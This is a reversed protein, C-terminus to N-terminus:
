VAAVLPINVITTKHLLRPGATKHSSHTTTENSLHEISSNSSGRLHIKQDSGYSGVVEILRKQGTASFPVIAKSFQIMEKEMSEIHQLLQTGKGSLKIKSARKMAKTRLEMMKSYTVHKNPACLQNETDDHAWVYMQGFTILELFTYFCRTLYDTRHPLTNTKILHEQEKPSYVLEDRDHLVGQARVRRFRFPIELVPINNEKLYDFTFKESHLPKERSYSLARDLKKGYMIASKYSGMAFRDNYEGGFCKRHFNPVFLTNKYEEILYIPLENLYHVDPRLYVVADFKMVEARREVARTLQRLSNLARLHNVFSTYNTKWPDGLTMYDRFHFSSDFTDQDEITVHDPNLIKWESFNLQVSNENNRISMYNGTFNYTHIFIEYTHGQNLIPKLCMEHMSHVTYTLSRLIGWLCIAIHM